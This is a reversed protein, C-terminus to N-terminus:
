PIKTNVFLNFNIYDVSTGLAGTGDDWNNENIFNYAHLTQVPCM